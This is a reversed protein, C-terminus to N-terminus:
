MEVYCNSYIKYDIVPKQNTFTISVNFYMKEYLFLKIEKYLNELLSFYLTLAARGSFCLTKCYIQM